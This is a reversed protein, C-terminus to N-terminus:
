RNNVLSYNHCHGPARKEFTGFLTQVRFATAFDWDKQNYMYLQKNVYKLYM